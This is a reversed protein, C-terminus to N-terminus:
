ANVIQKLFTEVDLGYAEIINDPLRKLGNEFPKSIFLSPKIGNNFVSKAIAFTISKRSQLQGQKNRPAIGKRVVWKDFVKAPPMKTTYKYPTNYHKKKGSVGLDVFKGYEEMSLDLEISNKSVKVKYGISDYLKKSVTKRQKSLNNKAQQVIYKGFSDLAKQTHENSVSV